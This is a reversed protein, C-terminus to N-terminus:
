DAESEVGGNQMAEQMAVQVEQEIEAEIQVPVRARLVRLRALLEADTMQEPDDDLNKTHITALRHHIYPAVDAAVESARTWNGARLFIRMTLLMVQAPEIEAIAEEGLTETAVQMFEALRNEREVTSKNKTGADRGGRREGPRAGRREIRPEPPKSDATPDPKAHGNVKTADAPIAGSPLMAALAQLKAKSAM